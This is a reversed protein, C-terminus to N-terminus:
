GGPWPIVKGVHKPHRPIAVVDESGDYQISIYVYKKSFAIFPPGGLGGYGADYEREPLGDFTTRLTPASDKTWPYPEGRRDQYFCVLDESKEGTAKLADLVLERITTM